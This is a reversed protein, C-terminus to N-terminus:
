LHSYFRPSLRSFFFWGLLLSVLASVLSIAVTNLSPIKGDYIPQRMLEFLYFLPNAEIVPRYRDPVVALPYVIPTLYMFGTMAVTYMERIDTFFVAISSVVLSVGLTFVGLILLSVPLFLMAPTIPAHVVLMILLLPIFSLALNIMGSITSALAFITKPVRVRKMLSGNWALSSMSGVTTQSFFNWPLFAALFYTEYNRIAFRFLSSFVIVFIVMLMLPNLMTWLFGLVSRKYRVTLDRHFLSVLLHGFARLTRLEQFLRPSAGAENINIDIATM